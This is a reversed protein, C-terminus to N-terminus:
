FVVNDTVSPLLCRKHVTAIPALIIGPDHREADWGRRWPTCDLIREHCLKLMSGRDINFDMLSTVRASVTELWQRARRVWAYPQEM